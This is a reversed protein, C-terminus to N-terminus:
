EVVNQVENVQCSSTVKCIWVTLVFYLDIAPIMNDTLCGQLIYKLRLYNFHAEDKSAAVSFHHKCM